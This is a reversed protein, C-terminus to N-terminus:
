VIVERESEGDEVVSDSDTHGLPIGSVETDEDIAVRWLDPLPGLGNVLRIFGRCDAHLLVCLTSELLRQCVTWDLM